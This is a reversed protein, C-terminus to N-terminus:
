SDYTAADQRREREAAAQAAARGEWLEQVEGADVDVAAADIPPSFVSVCDFVLGLLWPSSMVAMMTAMMMTMAMGMTMTMAMGMTMTMAMAMTMAIAM